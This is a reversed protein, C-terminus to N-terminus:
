YEIKESSDGLYFPLIIGLKFNIMFDYRNIGLQSQNTDYNLSRRNQTIALVPEIGGFFSLWGQRSLYQYGIYPILAVGNSLRDLGKLYDTTFQTLARADDVFRIHHQIFGIGIQWKIGQRAKEQSFSPILGGANLQFFFGREKLKMEALYQDSGILLGDSQTRFPVLVDEKVTSGFFYCFSAGYSFNNKAPQYTLGIGLSLQEGFRKELDGGPIGYGYSFESLLMKSEQSKLQRGCFLLFCFFIYSYLRTM